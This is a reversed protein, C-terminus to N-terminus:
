EGLGSRVGVWEGFRSRDGLRSRRRGDDGDGDGDDDYADWVM